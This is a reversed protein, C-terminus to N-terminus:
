GEGTAMVSDDETEMLDEEPTGEGPRTGERSGASTAGPNGGEQFPDLVPLDELTGPPLPTEAKTPCTASGPDLCTSPRSAHCAFCIKSTLANGSLM